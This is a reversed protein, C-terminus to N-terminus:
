TNQDPNQPNKQDPNEKIFKINNKELRDILKKFEDKCSYCDYGDFDNELETIRFSIDLGVFCALALVSAENKFIIVNHKKM